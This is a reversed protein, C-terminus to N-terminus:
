YGTGSYQLWDRSKPRGVNLFCSLGTFRPLGAEGIPGAALELGRKELTICLLHQRDVLFCLQM